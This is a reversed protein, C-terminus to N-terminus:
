PQGGRLWVALRQLASPRSFVIRAYEPNEQVIQTAYVERRLETTPAGAQIEAILNTVDDLPKDATGRRQLLITEYAQQLETESRRSLERTLKLLQARGKEGERRSEQAKLKDKYAEILNGLNVLEQEAIKLGFSHVVGVGGLVAFFGALVPSLTPQQAVILTAGVMFIVFRFSFYVLYAWSTIFRFSNITPWLDVLDFLLTFLFVTVAAMSLATVDM